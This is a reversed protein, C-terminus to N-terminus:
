TAEVEVEKPAVPTEEQPAPNTKIVSGPVVDPGSQLPIEAAAKKTLPLKGSQKAKNLFIFLVGGVVILSCTYIVMNTPTAIVTVFKSWAGSISVWVIGGVGALGGVVTEKVGESYACAASVGSVILLVFIIFWVLKRMEL